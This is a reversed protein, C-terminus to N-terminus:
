TPEAPPIELDLYTSAWIIITEVYASFEDTSLSTTSSSSSGLVEGTDPNVIDKRNFNERLYLHVDDRTLASPLSEKHLDEKVYGLDNLRERILYVLVGWYYRNQPNSRMKLKKLEVSVEKGELKRIEDLYYVQEIPVLEGNQVLATYNM